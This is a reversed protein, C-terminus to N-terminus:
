GQQVDHLQYWSDRSPPAGGSLDEGIVSRVAPMVVGDHFAQGQELSEWVDFIRFVSAEEDFGATHVILGAAQTGSSRIRENIADYNGTTRDGGQIPFEQIHAVAM